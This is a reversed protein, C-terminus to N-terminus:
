PKLEVANTITNEVDNGVKIEPPSQLAKPALAKIPKSHPQVDHYDIAKQNKWRSFVYIISPNENDQYVHMEINGEEQLSGELSQMATEIFADLYAAKVEFTVMQNM